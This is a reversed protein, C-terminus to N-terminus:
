LEKRKSGLFGQYGRSYRSVIVETLSSPHSDNIWGPREGQRRRLLREVVFYIASISGFLKEKGQHVRRVACLLTCLEASYGCRLESEEFTKRINLEAPTQKFDHDVETFLKAFPADHSYPLRYRTHMKFAQASVLKVKEGRRSHCWKGGARHEM